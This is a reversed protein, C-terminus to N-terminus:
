GKAKSPFATTFNIRLDERNLFIHERMLYEARSSQHQTIASLIREHDRFAREIANRGYLQRVEEPTHPQGNSDYVMPLRMTDRVARILYENGSEAALVSHFIQNINNWRNVGSADTDPSALIDSGEAMCSALAQDASPSLGQEAVIRCAMGELTARVDFAALLDSLGFGRMTFGCNPEYVLLGEHALTAMADRVPTRSVDLRKAVEVEKLRDGARFEGSLLLDRLQGLVQQSRTLERLM